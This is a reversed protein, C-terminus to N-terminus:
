LLREIDKELAAPEVMSEYRAVVNGDRDVLFKTFNWKIDSKQAYDPDDKSLREDFAKGKDTNLDFGRFAQQEKLFVFLPMRRRAVLVPRSAYHHVLVM